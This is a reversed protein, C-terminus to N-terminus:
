PIGSQLQLIPKNAWKTVHGIADTEPDASIVAYRIYRFAPIKEMRIDSYADTNIYIDGRVLQDTSCSFLSCVEILKSVEPYVLDLEWKSITQRSVNLKKALEEQTMQHNMKRLFQLNQGFSMDENGGM